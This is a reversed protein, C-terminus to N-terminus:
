KSGPWITVLMRFPLFLFECAALSLARAVTRGRGGRQSPLSNDTAAILAALRLRTRLGRGGRELGSCQMGECMGLLFPFTEVLHPLRLPAHIGVAKLTAVYLESAETSPLGGTLYTLLFRAEASLADGQEERLMCSCKNEHM